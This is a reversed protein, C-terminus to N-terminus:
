MQQWIIVPPTIHASPHITCHSGVRIGHSERGPIIIGNQEGQLIERSLKWYDRMNRLLQGKDLIEVFQAKLNNQVASENLELLNESVLNLEVAKDSLSLVFPLDFNDKTQITNQGKFGAITLFNKNKEHETLLEKLNAGPLVGSNLALLTDGAKAGSAKLLSPFANEENLFHYKILSGWREGFKFYERSEQHLHNYAIHIERIGQDALWEIQHELIPKNAVYLLYESFSNYLVELDGTNIASYILAKM